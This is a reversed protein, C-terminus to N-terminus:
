EALDDFKKQLPNIFFFLKFVEQRGRGGGGWSLIIIILIFIVFLIFVNLFM